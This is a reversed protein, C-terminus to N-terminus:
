ISKLGLMKQYQDKTMKRLPFIQYGIRIKQRLPEIEMAKKFLTRAKQSQNNKALQYSYNIQWEPTLRQLQYDKEMLMIGDKMDGKEAREWGMVACGNKFFPKEAYLSDMLMVASTLEGQISMAWANIKQGDCSLRGLDIDRDIFLRLRKENGSSLYYAWGLKAYGDAVNHDRCYLDDVLKIASDLEGKFVKIMMLNKQWGPSLRGIENDKAMLKDAGNWDQNQAKIWGLRAFGDILTNNNKYGQNIIEIAKEFEGMRGYMQALVLNWGPSIRGSEWDKNMIELAGSWDKKQAKLLGLRAFGDKQMQNSSYAKKILNEAKDFEEKHGYVIGLNIMAESHSQNLELVRSFHDEADSHNGFQMQLLGMQFVAFENEPACCIAEEFFSNAAEKDGEVKAIIGLQMYADSYSPNVALLENFNETAEEYRGKIMYVMGVGYKIWDSASNM